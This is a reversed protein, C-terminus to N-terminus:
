AGWSWAGHSGSTSVEARTSGRSGGELTGEVRPRGGQRTIVQIVGGIADSGFLASEPGRVVEIRDVGAISLQSLDAGGGFANAPVGDVLVMTFDSEGGRPFVSTVSGRGGNSAVSMGPVLRLADSVGDIQRSRLRGADVVTISDAARSLAVDVQAASVVISESVGSVHLGITVTRTEDASVSVSLPDAQFGPLVVTVDYRGAELREAAFAGEHDTVLPPRSAIPQRVFVQAGPVPRGDPDLVHGRITAACVASPSAMLAVVILALVPLVRRVLLMSTREPTVVRRGQM